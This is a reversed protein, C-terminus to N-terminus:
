LFVNTFPFVRMLGCRVEMKTRNFESVHKLKTENIRKLSAANEADIRSQEARRSGANLSKKTGCAEGFLLASSSTKKKHTVNTSPTLTTTTNASQVSDGGGGIVKFVKREAILGLKKLLTKNQYEIQANRDSELQHKKANSRLHRFEPPPSNDISPVMARLKNKHVKANQENQWIVAPSPMCGMGPDAGGGSGGKLRMRTLTTTQQQKRHGFRAKEEGKAERVGAGASSFSRIAM